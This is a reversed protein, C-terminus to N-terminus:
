LAVDIGDGIREDGGVKMGNIFPAINDAHFELRSHGGAVAPLVNRRVTTIEQTALVVNASEIEIRNRREHLNRKGGRDIDGVDIGPREVGAPRCQSRQRNRGQFEEGRARTAVELVDIIKFISNRDGSRMPWTSVKTGVM